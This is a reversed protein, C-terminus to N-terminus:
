GKDFVRICLMRSILRPAPSSLLQAQGELRVRMTSHDEWPNEIKLGKRGEENSRVGEVMGLM